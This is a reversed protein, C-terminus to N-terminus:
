IDKVEYKELKIEIRPNLKDDFREANIQCIQGDNQYCLGELADQTIKLGITLSTGWRKLPPHISSWLTRAKLRTDKL